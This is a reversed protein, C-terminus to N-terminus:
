PVGYSNERTEKVWAHYGEARTKETAKHVRKGHGVGKPVPSSVSRSRTRAMAAVAPAQAFSFCTPTDTYRTCTTPRHSRRHTHAKPARCIMEGVSTHSHTCPTSAMQKCTGICQVTHRRHTNTTHQVYPTGKQKGTTRVIHQLRHADLCYHTIHTHLISRNGAFVIRLCWEGNRKWSWSWSM